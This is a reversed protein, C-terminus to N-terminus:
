WVYVARLGGFKSVFATKNKNKTVKVKSRQGQGEFEGLHHVLCTKRTFKACIREATGSERSIKNDYVFLFFGRVSPALFLVKRLEGDATFVTYFKYPAAGCLM